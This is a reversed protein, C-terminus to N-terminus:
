IVRAVFWQNGQPDTFGAVMEGYGHDATEWLSTAGATLARKYAADPDEVYVYLAQPKPEAGEGMEIVADGLKVSAHMVRGEHAYRAQEEAGFVTTMFDILQAASKPHLYMMLPQEPQEGQLRKAIYWYNGAPDEVFASREGYDRDGPKGVDGMLLKAGAAMAREYAADVDDVFYHLAAPMAPWKEMAQGMMLMSEGLRVQAHLGGASGTSQHTVVGGFAESLFKVTQKVYPVAMYPTVTRFGAQRHEKAVMPKMRESMGELERWVDEKLSVRPMLALEPYLEFLQQETM